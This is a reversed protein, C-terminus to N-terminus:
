ILLRRRRFTSTPKTPKSQKVIIPPALAQKTMDIVDQNTLPKRTQAGATSLHVSVLMLAFFPVLHRIKVHEFGGPIRMLSETYATLCGRYKQMLKSTSHNILRALRLKPKSSPPVSKPDNAASSQVAYLQINVRM